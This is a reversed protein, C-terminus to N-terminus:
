LLFCNDTCVSQTHYLYSLILHREWLLNALKILKISKAADKGRLKVFSYWFNLDLGQLHLGQWNVSNNLYTNMFLISSRWLYKGAPTLNLQWGYADWGLAIAIYILISIPLASYAFRESRCRRKAVHSNQITLCWGNVRTFALVVYIYWCLLRMCQVCGWVGSQRYM